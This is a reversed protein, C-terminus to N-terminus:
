AISLNPTVMLIHDNIPSPVFGAHRYFSAAKEHLAHVLIARIGAIEAAQLTRLVADWLLAMGLGKGQWAQDVALRGLVMFPIRCIGKLGAPCGQRWFQVMLWRMTPLSGTKLRVDRQQQM